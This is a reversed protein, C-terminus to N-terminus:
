QKWCNEEWELCKLCRGCVMDILQITLKELDMIAWFVNQKCVVSLLCNFVERTVVIM